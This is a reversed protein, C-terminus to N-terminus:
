STNGNFHDTLITDLPPLDDPHILARWDETTYGIEDREYGLTMTWRHSFYLRNAPINWDWLGDNAGEVALSLRADIFVPNLLRNWINSLQKRIQAMHGADARLKDFVNLDPPQINADPPLYRM